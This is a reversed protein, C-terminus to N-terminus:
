SKTTEKDTPESIPQTTEQPAYKLNLRDREETTIKEPNKAPTNGNDQNGSSSELTESNSNLANEKATVSDEFKQKLEAEHENFYALAQETGRDYKDGFNVNLDAVDMQMAAKFGDWDNTDILDKQQERYAQQDLGRGWSGTRQHDPTQMWISPGDDKNLPSISDAPIHHVQGGTNADRVQRYSGGLIQPEADEQNSSLLTM